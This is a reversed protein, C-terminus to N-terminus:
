ALTSDLRRSSAGTLSCIVGLLDKNQLMIRGGNRMIAPTNRTITGAPMQRRITLSRMRLKELYGEEAEAVSILKKQADQITM